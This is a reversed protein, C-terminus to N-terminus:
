EGQKEKKEAPIQYTFTFDISEDGLLWLINAKAQFETKLTMYVKKTLLLRQRYDDLLQMFGQSGTQYSKELVAISQNLRKLLSGEYLERKRGSEVIQNLAIQSSKKLFLLQEQEFSIAKNIGLKSQEIQASTKKFSLPLTMGVNILWPDKGSEAMGPAEGTQIYGFGVTFDPLYGTQSLNKKQNWFSKQAKANKLKFNTAFDHPILTNGTQLSLERFAPDRAISINEPTNSLEKLILNKDQLVRYITQKEDELIEIESEMKLVRSYSTKGVKYDVRLTKSWTQYLSITSDILEQYLHLYQIDAWTNRVKLLLSAKTGSIMTETIETQKKKLQKQDVLKGPWPIKQQIGFKQEQPGVRTEVNEGFWSYSIMPDPLVGVQDIEEIQMQKQLSIQKIKPNTELVRESLVKLENKADQAFAISGLLLLYLISNNLKLIYM